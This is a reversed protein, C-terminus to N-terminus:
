VKVRYIDARSTRCVVRTFHVIEDGDPEVHASTHALEVGNEFSAVTTAAGSGDWRMLRTKYGCRDPSGLVYFVVGDDTVSADYTARGADPARVRQQTGIEYRFVTCQLSRPCVHYTAYGGSVQGASVWGVDSATGIITSSSTSFRYLV